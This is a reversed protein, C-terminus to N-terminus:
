KLLRCMVNFFSIFDKNTFCLFEDESLSSFFDHIGDASSFDYYKHDASPKCKASSQSKKCSSDDSAHAASCCCKSDNNKFYSKTHYCDTNNQAAKKVQSQAFTNLEHMLNQYESTGDDYASLYNIIRSFLLPSMTIDQSINKNDPANKQQQLAHIQTSQMHIKKNLTENQKVLEAITNMLFDNHSTIKSSITRLVTNLTNDVAVKSLQDVADRWYYNVESMTDDLITQLSAFDISTIDGYKHRLYQSLMWKLEDKSCGVLQTIDFTDTDPQELKNINTKDVSANNETNNETNINSNAASMDNNNM